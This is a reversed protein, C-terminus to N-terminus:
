ERREFEAEDFLFEQQFALSMRDFKPAAEKSIDEFSTESPQGKTETCVLKLLQNLLRFRDRM